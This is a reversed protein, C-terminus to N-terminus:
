EMADQIPHLCGFQDAKIGALPWIWMNAQWWHQLGQRLDERLIAGKSRTISQGPQMRTVAEQFATINAIRKEQSQQVRM